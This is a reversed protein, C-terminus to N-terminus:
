VSECGSECGGDADRGVFDPTESPTHTTLAQSDNGAGADGPPACSYRGGDRALQRDRFMRAMLGRVAVQGRAGRKGLAEAVEAPSLARGAGRLVHVIQQREAGEVRAGDAPGLLRWSLRREEWVLDLDQTEDNERGGAHLAALLSGRGRALVLVAEAALAMGSVDAFPDVLDDPNVRRLHAVVLVAVQHRAAVARVALLTEYDEDFLDRRRPRRRRLRALSDFVVLRAAPHETLWQDLREGADEDLCSWVDAVHLREPCAGGRAAILRRLRRGLRRRGDEAGVYLAEGPEAALSGLADGGGAVAFALDLALWSKGTRPRGLLLTTGFPVLGPVVWRLPEVPTALFAHASAVAEQVSARAVDPDAGTAPAPPAPGRLEALRLPLDALWAPADGLRSDGPGRQWRFAGGALRSPPLPVHRGAGLLRLGHGEFSGPVGGVPGRFLLVRGGRPDAFTFTDPAVASSLERLADEGAPGDVALAVLDSVPGLAVGVNCGPTLSWWADLVDAAPRRTHGLPAPVLPYEGPLVCAAHAAPVRDHDPPCLPLASWGRALYDHAAAFCPNDSPKM